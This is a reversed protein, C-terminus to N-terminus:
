GTIKGKRNKKVPKDTAAVKRPRGIPLVVRIQEIVAPDYIGTHGILRVPQIGIRYLRMKAALQSINLKEAIEIITLEKM